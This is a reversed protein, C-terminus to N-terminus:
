FVDTEKLLVMILVNNEISVDCILTESQVDGLLVPIYTYSCQEYEWGAYSFYAELFVTSGQFSCSITISMYIEGTYCLHRNRQGTIESEIDFTSIISLVQKEELRAGQKYSVSATNQNGLLSKYRKRKEQVFCFSIKTM